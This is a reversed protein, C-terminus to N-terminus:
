ERDAGKPLLASRAIVVRDVVFRNRGVRFATVPASVLDGNRDFSIDGLIGSEIRTRRVERTVSARSGDSRAIADLLIEAAQAGYAAAFDPGREGGNTRAFSALFQKGRPPLLRNPYGYNTVYLTDTAGGALKTLDGFV